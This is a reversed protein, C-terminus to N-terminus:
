HGEWSRFAAFQQSSSFAQPDTMFSLMNDILYVHNREEDAIRKLLSKRNADTEKEAEDAYLTVAKQEIKLAEVWASRTDEGFRKDKNEQILQVFVNKTDRLATGSELAKSALEIKGEAMMRFFKYHREEENALYQFIERLDKSKAGAAAKEYFAKGDLEMQLAFQVIDM